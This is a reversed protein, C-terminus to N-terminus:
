SLEVEVWTPGDRNLQYITSPVYLILDFLCSRHLDTDTKKWTFLSSGTYSATIFHTFDSESSLLNHSGDKSWCTRRGSRDALYIVSTTSLSTVCIAWDM